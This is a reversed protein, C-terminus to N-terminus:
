CHVCRVASVRRKRILLTAMHPLRGPDRPVVGPSIVMVPVARLEVQGSGGLGGGGGGDGGGGNAEAGSYLMLFAMLLALQAEDPKVPQTSPMSGHVTGTHPPTVQEPSIGTAKSRLKAPSTPVSGGNSLERVERALISMCPFEICLLHTVNILCKVTCISRCTCCTGSCTCYNELVKM